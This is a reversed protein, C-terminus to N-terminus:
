QVMRRFSQLDRLWVDNGATNHGCLYLLAQSASRIGTGAGGTTTQWASNWWVGFGGLGDVRTKLTYDTSAAWNALNSGCSRNGAAGDYHSFLPEDTNSSM